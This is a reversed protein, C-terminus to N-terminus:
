FNFAKQKRPFIGFKKGFINEQTHAGWKFFLILVEGICFTSILSWPKTSQVSRKLACDHSYAKGDRYRLISLISM